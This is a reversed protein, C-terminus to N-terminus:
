DPIRRAVYAADRGRSRRDRFVVPISNLWPSARRRATFVVVPLMNIEGRVDLRHRSLLQLPKLEVAQAVHQLVGVGVHRMVAAAEIRGVDRWERQASEVIEPAKGEGRLRIQAVVVGEAHEGNRALRDHPEVGGRARRSFRGDDAVGGGIEGVPRQEHRARHDAGADPRAVDHVVGIAVPQEGAPEAGM